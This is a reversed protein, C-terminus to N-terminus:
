ENKNDKDFNLMPKLVNLIEDIHEEAGEINLTRILDLIGRIYSAIGETNTIELIIEDGHIEGDNHNSFAIGTSFTNGKVMVQSIYTTGRGLEVIQIDSDEMKTIM